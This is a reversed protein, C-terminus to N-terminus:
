ARRLVQCKAAAIFAIHAISVNYMHHIEDGMLVDSFCFVSVSVSM